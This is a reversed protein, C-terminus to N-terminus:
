YMWGLLRSCLYPCFVGFAQAVKLVYEVGLKKGREMFSLRELCHAYSDSGNVKCCEVRWCAWVLVFRICLKNIDTKFANPNLLCVRSLVGSKHALGGM